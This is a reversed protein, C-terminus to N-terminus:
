SFIVKGIFTPKHSWTAAQTDIRSDEGGTALYYSPFCIGMIIFVCVVIYSRNTTDTKYTAWSMDFSSWSKRSRSRASRIVHYVAIAFFLEWQVVDSAIEEITEGVLNSINQLGSKPRM